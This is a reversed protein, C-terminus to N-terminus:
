LITKGLIQNFHHLISNRTKENTNKNPPYKWRTFLSINHTNIEHSTIIRVLFLVFVFVSLFLLKKESHTQYIYICTVTNPLSSIRFKWCRVKIPFYYCSNISLLPFQVNEDSYLENILKCAAEITDFKTYKKKKIRKQM